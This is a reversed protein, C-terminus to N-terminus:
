PLRWMSFGPGHAPLRLAGDADTKVDATGALGHLIGDAIGPSLLVPEHPSRAAHVLVSEDPAERVFTVVDAGVALWRLGGRRLAASGARAGFLARTQALRATDWQSPDQWPFPRRGDEGNVGELGIEDGAWLMPIGPMAALMGFAVTVLDTDRELFTAVRAVDHSGILTLAHARSRWPVAADFARMAAVMAHGDLTPIPTFPGPQLEIPAPPRLWQWLPRSFGAYDMVGHWGDGLLDASADHSHEALLLSEPHANAMTANIATAVEHNLDVPGLRGTMNAVDIRWGDLGHPGLWRAVTSGPGEYLAERLAPSSHDFKPLSSHGFWSVYDHPHHTFTFYSAEPSGADSVARRFWEHGDGSHNTTLDGMIRMGRAHVADCLRVLAEDGGLLPDVHDFTSADYRHNSRGPFVPTLYLTNAGTSAIHDLHSIIGDLDGGYYQFPTEPGDGIVADSWEQAIAWDPAARDMSKAFRDPFIQYLVADRAWNPPAPHTTIRFDAADTVDHQHLGEGNLWQYANPVGDLLWRYNVVRNEVTFEARLWVDHPTERDVHTEILAQEGDICTRLLARQVGSSRPVRLVVSVVDGLVPALTSVYAESGDHHPVSSLNSLM